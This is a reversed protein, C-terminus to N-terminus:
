ALLEDRRKLFEERPIKRLESAFALNEAVTLDNYLTFKQSMYGVQRKVPELGDALDLGAVRVRGATPPLLGCLVRITTTKGAGNAGIFGFIEGPKVSFTVNNVAFFDGFRVSLGEVQVNLSGPQVDPM